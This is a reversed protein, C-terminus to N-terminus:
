NELDKGTRGKASFVLFKWVEATVDLNGEGEEM